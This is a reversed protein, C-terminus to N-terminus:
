MESFNKGNFEVKIADLEEKTTAKEVRDDFTWKQAYAFTGNDIIEKQLTKLQDYSLSHFVNDADRFTIQENRNDEYAILLGNVDSNARENADAKFGLSSILTAQSNRWSLFAQKIFFSKQTKLTEIPEQEEIYTVGFNSWFEVINETPTKSFIKHEQEYIAKRVDRESTYEINNYIFKKIM